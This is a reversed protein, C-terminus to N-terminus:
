SAAGGLAIGYAGIVTAPQPNPGEGPQCRDGVSSSFAAFADLESLPNTDATVEAVHVFTDDALRLTVYRLGPPQREALAAFVAEVLRQNEDALEPKTRYRVVVTSM